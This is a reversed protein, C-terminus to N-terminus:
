RGHYVETLSDQQKDFMKYTIGYKKLAVEESGSSDFTVKDNGFSHYLMDGSLSYLGEYEILSKEGGTGYIFYLAGKSGKVVAMYNIVVDLVESEKGSSFKVKSTKVRYDITKIKNTGNFFVLKQNICVPNFAFTYSSPEILSDNNYTSIVCLSYKNSSICVKDSYITDLRVIPEYNYAILNHSIQQNFAIQNAQAGLESNNSHWLIFFLLLNKKFISLINKM